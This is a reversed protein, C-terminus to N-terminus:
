NTAIEIRRPKSKEARPLTVTLVGDKMKATIKERNIEHLLEFERRYATADGEQWSISHGEPAVRTVRGEIKMYGNEVQVEVSKEDVGPMDVTLVTENGSGWIDVRPVYYKEPRAQQVKDENKQLTTNETNM